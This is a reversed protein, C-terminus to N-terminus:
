PTSRLWCDPIEVEPGLKSAVYARMAAITPTPGQMWATVGDIKCAGVWPSDSWSCDLRIREREIIPGADKWELYHPYVWSRFLEHFYCAQGCSSTTAPHGEAVAVSFNLEEGSLDSVKKLM